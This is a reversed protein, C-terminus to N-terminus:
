RVHLPHCFISDSATGATFAELKEATTPTIAVYTNVPVSLSPLSSPHRYTPSVHAIIFTHRLRIRNQVRNFQRIHTM